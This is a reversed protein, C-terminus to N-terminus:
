KIPQFKKYLPLGIALLIFPIAIIMFSFGALAANITNRAEQSYLSVNKAITFFGSGSAKIYQSLSVAESVNPYRIPTYFGAWLLIVGLALCIGIWSFLGIKLIKIQKTNM